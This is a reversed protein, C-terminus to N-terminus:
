FASSCMCWACLSHLKQTVPAYAWSGVV